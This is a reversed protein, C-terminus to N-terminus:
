GTEGPAIPSPNFIHGCFVTASASAGSTEQSGWVVGAGQCAVVTADVRGGLGAVFTAVNVMTESAGFLVVSASVGGLVSVAGSLAVFAGKFGELGFASSRRLPNRYISFGGGPQFPMSLSVTVPGGASIGFGAGGGIAGLPLRWITPEDNRKAYFAGGQAAAFLVKGLGFDIEAGGSTVFRWGTQQFM